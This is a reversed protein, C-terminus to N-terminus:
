PVEDEETVGTAGDHQSHFSLSLKKYIYIKKIKKELLM